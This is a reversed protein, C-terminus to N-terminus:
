WGDGVGACWARSRRDPSLLDMLLLESVRRTRPKGRHVITRADRYLVTLLAYAVAGLPNACAAHM